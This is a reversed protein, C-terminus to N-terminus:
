GTSLDFCNQNNMNKAIAEGIEGKSGSEAFDQVKNNGSDTEEAAAKKSNGCASVIFILCLMITIICTIKAKGGHIIFNM